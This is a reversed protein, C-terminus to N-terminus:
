AVLDGPGGDARHGYRREALGLLRDYSIIEISHARPYRGALNASRRDQRASRGVIVKYYDLIPTDPDLIDQATGNFPREGKNYGSVDHKRAWRVLTDRIVSPYSEYYERWDDLQKIAGALRRGPNGARTFPKEGIPELEIFHLEYAGSYSNLVAFDAKYRPGIPFSPFVYRSHGSAACLTWYLIWPHKGLYSLAAREGTHTDLLHRFAAVDVREKPM